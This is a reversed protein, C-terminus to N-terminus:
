GWNDIGPGRTERVRKKRKGPQKLGAYVGRGIGYLLAAWVMYYVMKAGGLAMIIAAALILLQM